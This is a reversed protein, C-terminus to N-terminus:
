KAMTGKDSGFPHPLQKPRIVFDGCNSCPTYGLSEAQWRPIEHPNSMSSCSRWRHFRVGSRPVYVSHMKTEWDALARAYSEWEAPKPHYEPMYEEALLRKDHKQEVAAIVGEVVIPIAFWGYYLAMALLARGTVYSYVTCGLAITWIVFRIVKCVGPDIARRRNQWAIAGAAAKDYYLRHLGYMEPNPPEPAKDTSERSNQASQYGSASRSSTSRDESPESGHGSKQTDRGGARALTEDYARRREVGRLTEYAENIRVMQRHADEGKNVDPHYARALRRYAAEIVIHEAKRDVQLVAYHDREM